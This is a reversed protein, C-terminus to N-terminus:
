LKVSITRTHSRLHSGSGILVFYGSLQLVLKVFRRKGEDIILGTDKGALAHKM